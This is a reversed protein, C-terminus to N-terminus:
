RPGGSIHRGAAIGMMAAQVIGQAIGAADGIVYVPLGPVRCSADIAPKNWLFELEPGIVLVQDALASLDTSHGSHTLISAFLRRFGATLSTHEADTFLHDVRSTTLDRVSPEFPLRAAVDPWARHDDRRDLFAGLSQVVPRGGSLKRYTDLFGDRAEIANSGRGTVQCLLGFNAALQRGDAPQPRDVTEHGDLTIVEGGFADYYNTFKIRGGNSGGCFCFTKVKREGADLQTIKLDPHERGIQDLLPVAMEFRVGVSIDPQESPVGLGDLLRATATVGRRGTALVLHEATVIRNEHGHRVTLELFDGLTGCATVESTHWIEARGNLWDHAGEIVRRLQTEGVVAVPYERIALAHDRFADVVADSLDRGLLDPPQDLPETLWSYATQCLEHATTPGFHDILRRGSPLLSLKAGDGYHMSGGFGSVVNCIRACGTCAHGKDVPCPRRRYHRGAEVLLVTADPQKTLVARAAAIGAPGTGAIVTNYHTM